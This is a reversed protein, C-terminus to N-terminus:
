ERAQDQHTRARELKRGVPISITFTTGKGVESEVEIRGGFSKIIGYSISLGLGTGKGVAKTTYFPFFVKEMQEETMGKGTDKVDIHVHADEFRTSVGIRGPGNMADRANNFLNLLVQELQNPNLRVEPVHDEFERVVEIDNVRFEETKMGIVRDTLANIDTPEIEVEHQRSFAMLKRTISRGRMAAESIARLREDFEDRDYKGGLGPDLMDRMIGAEEYIIALPNNIEHAVGAAMEGVSALKAANFLQGRLRERAEDAKQLRGVVIRTSRFVLLVTLFLAVALISTLVIRARGLPAYARSEPVMVVLVWDHQQLWACAALQKKGALVTKVIVVKSSRSPLADFRGPTTKTGTITQMEGASNVIFARAGEILHSRGVFGAFREPDVSARLVWSDEGIRRRLAVIFHPRGRFGLYVDSILMEKDSAVLTQWWTEKSYNTGQLRPYPGAYALQTGDNDFLGVDVFTSSERQLEKLIIVLDADAPDQEHAISAFTSKLNAVREELFLDVTNRQSEALSSLHNNIGQELTVNYQHHFYAALIILPAAYVLLMQWRLKNRLHDFHGEGLSQWQGAM